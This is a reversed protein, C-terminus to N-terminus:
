ENESRLRRILKAVQYAYPRDGLAREVLPEIERAQRRPHAVILPIESDRASPGGHVSHYPRSFYWRNPLAEDVRALLLVDGAREGYRGTGLDRLRPALDIWHRHPHVALWTEVPILHGHEYVQFPEDVDAFPRPRRALILDLTGYMPRGPREEDARRFIEAAALVDDFRPPQGWDGAAGVLHVYAMFGQYALVADFRGSAERHFPRVRLGADALVQVPETDLAHVDDALVETHGHDSAIVIWADRGRLAQALKGLKPDVVETLYERRARDPGRRAVHTYLDIGPLYLALVDPLDGDDLADFAADLAEEDIQAYVDRQSGGVVTELAEAAGDSLADDDLLLLRDAGAHFQTLSVWIRIRRDDARLRQWLSPVELLRDAYDDTYNAVAPDLAGVMLPAPTAYTQTDRLWMENGVM